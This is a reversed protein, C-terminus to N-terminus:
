GHARSATVSRTLARLRRRALPAVARARRTAPRRVVKMTEDTHIDILKHKHQPCTALPHCILGAARCPRHRKLVAIPEPLECALPVSMHPGLAFRRLARALWLLCVRVQMVLFCGNVAMNTAIMARGYIISARLQPSAPCPCPAHRHYTTRRSYTRYPPHDRRLGGAAGLFSLMPYCLM